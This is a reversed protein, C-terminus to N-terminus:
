SILISITRMGTIRTKLRGSIPLTIGTLGPIRATISPQRQNMGYDEGASEFYAQNIPLFAPRVLTKLFYPVIAELEVQLTKDDIVTVGLQEPDM